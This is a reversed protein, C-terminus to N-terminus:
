PCSPGPEIVPLAIKKRREVAPEMDERLDVWGGM